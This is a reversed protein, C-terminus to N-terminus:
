SIRPAKGNDQTSESSGIPAGANALAERPLPASVSPM